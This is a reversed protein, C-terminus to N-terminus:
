SSVRQFITPRLVKLPLQMNMISESHGLFFYGGVKLKECLKQLVREQTPRDFYILVNRCFVVDFTTDVRYVDDMFNLREFRVKNRLQPVIRVTPHERDKSRLFYKRKLDISLGEITEEKYVANRASQLVATSLDTGLISYDRYPRDALFEELVIAITYPEQGSSCGASWIKIGAMSGSHGYHEPLVHERMFAFHVEERFFDTKNTSVVDLMFVLEKAQGEPSLVYDTYQEFTDMDLARLRKQLRSQLMVRKAPPLKIGACGHIFSSLRTFCKDDLQSSFSGHLGPLSPGDNQDM